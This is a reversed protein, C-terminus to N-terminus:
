KPFTMQPSASSLHNLTMGTPSPVCGRRIAPAAMAGRGPPSPNTSKPPYLVYLSFSVSKMCWCIMKSLVHTKLSLGSLVGASTAPPEAHRSVSSRSASSLRLTRQSEGPVGEPEARSALEPGTVGSSLVARVAAAAVLLETAAASESARSESESDAPELGLGFTRRSLHLPGDHLLRECRLLAMNGPVRCTLMGNGEPRSLSLWIM